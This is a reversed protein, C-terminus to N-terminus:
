NKTKNEVKPGVSTLEELGGVQNYGANNVLYDIRGYLNNAQEAVKKIDDLPATVDLNLTDAGAKKVDELKSSNRATAIVKDGRSLATLTLEKGFGSSCGTIFWVRATSMTPDFVM